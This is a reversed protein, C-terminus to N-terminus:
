PGAEKAESRVVFHISATLHIQEALQSLRQSADAAAQLDKLDKALAPITQQNLVLLQERNANRLALPKPGPSKLWIDITQAETKAAALQQSAQEVDKKAKIAAQMAWRQTFAITGMKPAIDVIMSDRAHLSLGIRLGNYDKLVIEVRQGFRLVGESPKLEYSTNLGKVDEVHIEAKGGDAPESLTAHTVPQSLDLVVKTRSVPPTPPAAKVAERSRGADPSPRPEAPKVLTEPQSPTWPLRRGEPKPVTDPPAPLSPLRREEPKQAKALQSPPPPRRDRGETAQRALPSASNAQGSQRAFPIHGGGKRGHPTKSKGLFAVLM